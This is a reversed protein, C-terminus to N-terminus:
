RVNAIENTFAIFQQHLDDLIRETVLSCSQCFEDRQGGAVKHEQREAVAYTDRSADLVVIFALAQTRKDLPKEFLLAHFAANDHSRNGFADIAVGQRGVELEQQPEPLDNLRPAALSRYFTQYVLIQRQRQPNQAIKRRAIDIVVPLMLAAVGINNMFASLVGAPIIIVIVMRVESRGAVRLVSRGIIDAIGTRTLGDSLIFMAWVAIVASNSFGAVAESPSVLGTLALAGLVMLAIVDMRIKESIFLILSIGLIGLVLGIQLTM